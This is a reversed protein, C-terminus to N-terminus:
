VLVEIYAQVRHKVGLATAMALIKKPSTKGSAIAQKLADIGIRRSLVSPLMMSEVLTREISTISYGRRKAIGVTWQPNRCRYFKYRSSKTRKKFPVMLWVQKPVIDTLEYFSLASLLCIASLEGFQSSAGAFEDEEAIDTTTACYIGREVRELVGEKIFENISYQNLGSQLAQAYTFLGNQLRKPLENDM